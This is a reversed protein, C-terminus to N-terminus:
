FSINVNNLSIYIVSAVTIYVILIFFFKNENFLFTILYTIIGTHIHLSVYAMELPFFNKFISLKYMSCKTYM